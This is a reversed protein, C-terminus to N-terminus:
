AVTYDTAYSICCLTKWASLRPASENYNCFFLTKQNIGLSDPTQPGLGWDGSALPRETASGGVSRRNQLKKEGFYVNKPM